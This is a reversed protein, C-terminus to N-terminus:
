HYMTNPLILAIQPFLVILVVCILMAFWFPWIGKNMPHKPGMFYALSLEKAVVIQPATAAAALALILSAAFALKSKRTM